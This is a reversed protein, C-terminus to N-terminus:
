AAPAAQYHYYGAPPGLAQQEVDDQAEARARTDSQTCRYFFCGWMINIIFSASIVLLPSIRPHTYESDAIKLGLTM